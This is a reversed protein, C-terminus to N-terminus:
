EKNKKIFRGRLIAFVFLINIVVLYAPFAISSFNWVKVAAFSTANVFVSVIYLDVTETEPFHWSKIITPVAAFVDAIIAFFIAVGPQKTIMWLVLALVSLLGCIYDLKKLQWYSDRKVLTVIFIILPVFGNLFVPLVAWGVGDVIAAVSGILPAVAWMLWTVRNPKTKGRLIDKIYPLYGFVFGVIVGVFVLYQLM